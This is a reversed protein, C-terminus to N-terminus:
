GLEVACRVGRCAEQRGCYSGMLVACAYEEIAMCSVGAAKAMYVNERGVNARGNVCPGTSVNIKLRATDPM